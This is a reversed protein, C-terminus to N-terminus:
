PVFKKLISIIQIGSQSRLFSRNSCTTTQSKMNISYIRKAVIVLMKVFGISVFKNKRKTSKNFDSVVKKIEGERIKNNLIIYAIHEANIGLKWSRRISNGNLLMWSMDSSGCHEAPMLM